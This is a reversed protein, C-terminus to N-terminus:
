RESSLAAKDGIRPERIARDVDRDLPRSGGDQAFPGLGHGAIGRDANGGRDPQHQQAQERKAARAPLLPRQGLRTIRDGLAGRDLGLQM